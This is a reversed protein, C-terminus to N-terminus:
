CWDSPELLGDEASAPHTTVAQTPWTDRNRADFPRSGCCHGALHRISFRMTLSRRTSFGLRLDAPPPIPRNGKAATEVQGKGWCLAEPVGCDLLWCSMWCCQGGSLPQCSSRGFTDPSTSTVLLFFFFGVLVRTRKRQPVFKTYNARRVLKPM